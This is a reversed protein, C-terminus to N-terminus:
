SLHVALKPQVEVLFSHFACFALQDNKNPGEIAQLRQGDITHFKHLVYLQLLFTQCEIM